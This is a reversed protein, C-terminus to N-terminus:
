APYFQGTAPNFRWSGEALEYLLDRGMLGLRRGCQAGSSGPCGQGTCPHNLVKARQWGKVAQLQLSIGVNGRPGDVHLSVEVPLQSLADRRGSLDGVVRSKAKRRPMEIGADDLLERSIFSFHSGTDLHFERQFSGIALRVFPYRRWDKHGLPTCTVLETTSIEEVLAPRGTVLAGWGRDEEVDLLEDVTPLNRDEGRAMVLVTGGVRQFMIWDASTADWVDVVHDHLELNAAAELEERAAESLEHLQRAPLHFFRAKLAKVPVGLPDVPGDGARERMEDIAPALREVWDAVQPNDPKAVVTHILRPDLEAVRKRCDPPFNTLYVTPTPGSEAAMVAVLEPGNRLGGPEDIQPLAYDVIQIFRDASRTRRFAGPDGCAAVTYGLERAAQEALQLDTDEEDDVIYITESM